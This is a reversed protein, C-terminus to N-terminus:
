FIKYSKIVLDDETIEDVSNIGKGGCALILREM